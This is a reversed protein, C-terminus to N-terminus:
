HSLLFFPFFFFVIEGAVGEPLALELEFLM